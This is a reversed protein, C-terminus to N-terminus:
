LGRYLPYGAAEILDALNVELDAARTVFGRISPIGYRGRELISIREQTWGCRAALVRQTLQLEQRRTRIYAGFQKGHEGARGDSFTRDAV